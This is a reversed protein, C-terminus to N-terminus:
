RVIVSAFLLYILLSKQFLGRLVRWVVMWMAYFVDVCKNYLFICFRCYLFPFFHTTFLKEWVLFGLSHMAFFRARRTFDCSSCFNCASNCLLCVRIFYKLSCLTVACLILCVSCWGLFYGIYLCSNVPICWRIYLLSVLCYCGESFKYFVVFSCFVGILIVRLYIM